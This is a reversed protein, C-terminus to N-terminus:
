HTLLWSVTRLLTATGITDLHLSDIKNDDFWSITIVRKEHRRATTIMELVITMVNLVVTYPPYLPLAM